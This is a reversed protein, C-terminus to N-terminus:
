AGGFAGSGTAGLERCRLASAADAVADAPVGSPDLGAEEALRPVLEVLEARGALVATLDAERRRLEDAVLGVLTTALRYGEPDTLAMPYLRGEAAAFRTLADVPIEGGPRGM